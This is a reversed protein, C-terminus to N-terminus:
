CVPMCWECLGQVRGWAERTLENRHQGIGFERVRAGLYRGERQTLSSTDPSAFFAKWGNPEPERAQMPICRAYMSNRKAVTSNKRTNLPARRAGEAVGCHISISCKKAPAGLPCLHSITSPQFQCKSQYRHKVMQIAGAICNKFKSSQWSTEFDVGKTRETTERM